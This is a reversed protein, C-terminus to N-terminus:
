NAQQHSPAAECALTEPGVLHAAEPERMQRYEVEEPLNDM